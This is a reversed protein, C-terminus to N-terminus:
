TLNTVQLQTYSLFTQFTLIMITTIYQTTSSKKSFLHRSDIIRVSCYILSINSIITWSKLM